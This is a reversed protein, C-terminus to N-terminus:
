SEEESEEETAPVMGARQAEISRFREQIRQAEEYGEDYFFEIKPTFKMAMGSALERQVDSAQDQLLEEVEIPKQEGGLVSFYVRALRLDKAVWVRTM